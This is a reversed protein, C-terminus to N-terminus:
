FHRVKAEAFSFAAKKMMEGMKEKKNIIERMIMRFKLSLADAKKKLLRHGSQAGKLRQKMLALNMRSPFMVVRDKSSM